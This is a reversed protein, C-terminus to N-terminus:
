CTAQHLTDTLTLPIVLQGEVHWSGGKYEPKEPSLEISALKVIIQLGERQFDQFLDVGKSTDSPLYERGRSSFEGPEPQVYIRNEKEWKRMNYVDEDYFHGPRVHPRQDEPCRYEFYPSGSPADYRIRQELYFIRKLGTLTMNWLPMMKAIVKEIIGYLDKHDDPHLNNIYSM